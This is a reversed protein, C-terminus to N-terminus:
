QLVKDIVAELTEKASNESNSASWTWSQRDTSVTLRLAAAGGDEGEEEAAAAAAADREVVFELQPRDHDRAHRIRTGLAGLVWTQGKDKDEEEEQVAAAAASDGAGAGGAGAAAARRRRLYHAALARAAVVCLYDALAALDPYGDPYPACLAHVAAGAPALVHYYTATVPVLYTRGRVTFSVDGGGDDDDDDGGPLLAVDLAFDTPQLMHRVLSVAASPQNPGAAAAAFDAVTPQPTCLTFSSGTVGARRLTQVLNGVLQTASRASRAYLLRAIIPRLLTHVHQGRTRPVHPPLPRIRLLENCRHAYTLLIHLALSIAEATTNEPLNEDHDNLHPQAAASSSSSSAPLLEVIIRADADVACVLRKEDDPHVDYAALSRAERTLEHWLEQAFITNRAGLVRAQLDGGAENDDGDDDRLEQSAARGVVKGGREYTVVLREPTGGLRGMDLWPVGDDGRRIPALGNRQFEPAAESFGFRVGLGTSADGTGSGGPVRCVSWGAQRVGMVGEWYRGEAAMEAGLFAAADEAADRTRSIEMLTWGAAVAECDRTKAPTTNADDLRDAGMTGIGVLERLQQSLTLSAQTPNHKSLLLSLSDLTLMATNSAISPPPLSSPPSMNTKEAIEINRLVEMRATMPDKAATDEDDDEEDDDANADDSMDVDDDQAADEEGGRGGTTTITGDRRAGLEEELSTETVSRFGGPLANVRAIFDALSKPSKDAVPFPRMSLPPGDGTAM